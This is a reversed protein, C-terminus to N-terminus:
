ERQGVLFQSTIYEWLNETKRIRWSVDGANTITFPPNFVDHEGSFLRRITDIGRPSFRDNGNGGLWNKPPSVKADWSFPDSFLFKSKNQRLVRNVEILHKLPDPVKELINIAAITAFDHQRFPLALADAVIFDVRDFNWDANFNYHRPETLNGEVILNFDLRKSQVIERAKRIFTISTDMGIVHDHTKTLELTLRGVSCGIDLANGDTPKLNKSWVQYADTSRVECLLDGFHSWLYASLMDSTNYGNKHNLVRKTRQPLIAAIGQQIPYQEGCQWCRLEGDMVDDRTEKRCILELPIPTVLCEPCILKDVLWKKM